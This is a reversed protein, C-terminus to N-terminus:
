LCSPHTCVQINFKEPMKDNIEDLAQKVREQLTMGGAGAASRPQLEAINKFLANAQDLRFGIEANPHMGFAVPSEQPMYEDIYQSIQKATGPPAVGYGPFFELGELLEEYVYSSLYSAVLRRDFDDTVHGGYM